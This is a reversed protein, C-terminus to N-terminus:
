GDPFRDRARRLMLLEHFKLGLELLAQAYGPGLEAVINKAVGDDEGIAGATGSLFILFLAQHQNMGAVGLEQGFDRFAEIVNLLLGAIQRFDQLALMVAHFVDAPLLPAALIEGINVAGEQGEAGTFLHDLLDNIQFLFRCSALGRNQCM